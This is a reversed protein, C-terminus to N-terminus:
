PAVEARRHLAAVGTMGALAALLGLLASVAAYGFASLYHNRAGLLAAEVMFSSYTTFGGLVGTGVGLRVRRCWGKDAGLLTLTELLVALIFAGTVNIVFTAWPWGDRASPIAEEVTFRLFTGVAGGCFILLVSWGVGQRKSAADPDIPEQWSAMM